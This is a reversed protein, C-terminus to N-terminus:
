STRTYAVKVDNGFHTNERVHELARFTLARHWSAPLPTNCKAVGGVDQGTRETYVVGNHTADHIIRSIEQSAITAMLEMEAVARAPVEDVDFWRIVTRTTVKLRDALWGPSLGLGTLQVKLEAGSMPRDTMDTM